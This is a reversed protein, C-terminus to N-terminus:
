KRSTSIPSFFMKEGELKGKVCSRLFFWIQGYLSSSKKMQLSVQQFLFSECRSQLKKGITTTNLAGRAIVLHCERPMRKVICRRRSLPKQLGGKMKDISVSNRAPRASRLQGVRVNHDFHPYQTITAGQKRVALREERGCPEIAM